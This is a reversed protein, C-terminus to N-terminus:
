LLSAQLQLQVAVNERGKRQAETNTISPHIKLCSFCMTDNQRKAQLTKPGAEAAENLLNPKLIVMFLPSALIERTTPMRKKDCGVVRM